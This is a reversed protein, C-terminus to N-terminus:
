DRNLYQIGAAIGTLPNRIEHAVSSTFRGLVALRDLHRIEEEMRKLVSIDVFEIVGGETGEEGALPSINMRIPTHIGDKCRLFAERYRVPRGEGLVRTISRDGESGTQSEVVIESIKMGRLEEEEYGSMDRASRNALTVREDLDFAFIGNIMGEIVNERFMEEQRLDQYLMWNEINSSVLSGVTELTVQDINTLPTARYGDTIILAGILPIHPCALCEPTSLYGIHDVNTDRKTMKQLACEDSDLCKVQEVSKVLPVCLYSSMTSEPFLAEGEVEMLPHMKVDKILYPKGSLLSRRCAGTLNELGFNVVSRVVRNAKEISVFAQFQGRKKRVLIVATEKYGVGRILYDFVSDILRKEDLSSIINRGIEKLSLLQINKEVLKYLSRELDTLLTLIMGYFIDNQAGRVKGEIFLGESRLHGLRHQIEEIRRDLQRRRLFIATAAGGAGIPLTIWLPIYSSVALLVCFFAAIITIDGFRRM